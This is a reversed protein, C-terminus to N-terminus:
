GVTKSMIIPATANKATSIERAKRHNSPDGAKAVGKGRSGHSGTKLAKSAEDKQQRREQEKLLNLLRRADLKDADAKGDAKLVEATLDKSTFYQTKWLSWSDDLGHLITMTLVWNPLQLGLDELRNYADLIARGYAEISTYDSSSIHLNDWLTAISAFDTHYFEAKLAQYAEGASQQKKKCDQVIKWADGETVLMLIVFLKKDDRESIKGKSELSDWLDALTM